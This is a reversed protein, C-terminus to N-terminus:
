LNLSSTDDVLEIFDSNSKVIHDLRHAFLGNNLSNDSAFALSGNVIKMQNILYINCFDTYLLDIDQLSLLRNYIRIEGIAGLWKKWYSPLGNTDPSQGIKLDQNGWVINVSEMDEYVVNDIILSAKDLLTDMLIVVHHVDYKGPVVKYLTADVGSSKFYCGLSIEDTVQPSGYIQYGNLSQNTDHRSLICSANSSASPIRTGEDFRSWISYSRYNSDFDVSTPVSVAGDPHDNNDGNFLCAKNNSCIYTEEVNAPITGDNGNGSIDTAGDEFDYHLVLGTTIDPM